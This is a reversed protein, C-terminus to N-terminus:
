LNLKLLYWAGGFLNDDNNFVCIINGETFVCMYSIEEFINSYIYYAVLLKERYKQTLVM